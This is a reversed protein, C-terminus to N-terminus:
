LLKFRTFMKKKIMHQGLRPNNCHPLAESCRVSLNEYIQIDGFILTKIVLIHWRVCKKESPSIKSNKEFRITRAELM